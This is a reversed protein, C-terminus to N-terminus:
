AAQGISAQECSRLFADIGALTLLRKRGVKLSPLRGSKMHEYLVTRGLRLREAAEDVTLLVVDPTTQRPENM